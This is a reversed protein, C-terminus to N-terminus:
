APGFPDNDYRIVEAGVADCEARVVLRKIDGIAASEDSEVDLGRAQEGVPPIERHKLPPLPSPM